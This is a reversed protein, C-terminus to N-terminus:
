ILHLNGGASYRPQNNIINELFYENLPDSLDCVSNYQSSKGGKRIFDTFHPIRWQMFCLDSYIYHKFLKMNESTDTFIELMGISLPGM